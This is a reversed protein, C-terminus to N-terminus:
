DSRSHAQGIHTSFSHICRSKIACCSLRQNGISVPENAHRLADIDDSRLSQRRKKTKSYSSFGVLSLYHRRALPQRSTNRSSKKRTTSRSRAERLSSATKSRAFSPSTLM